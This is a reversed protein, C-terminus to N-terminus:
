MKIWLKFTQGTFVCPKKPFKLIKMLKPKREKRKQVRKSLFCTSLLYSSTIGGKGERDKGKGGWFGIWVDFVKDRWISKKGKGGIGEFCITGVSVSAQKRPISSWQILISFGFAHDQNYSTLASHHFQSRTELKLHCYIAFERIMLGSCFLVAAVQWSREKNLNHIM